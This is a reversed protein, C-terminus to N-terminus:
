FGIQINISIDAAHAPGAVAAGAPPNARAQLDAKLGDLTQKMEPTLTFNEDEMTKAPDNIFRDRLSKDDRLRRQFDAFDAM